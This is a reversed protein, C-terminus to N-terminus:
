LDVFREPNVPINNKRVEFHLHPGTARGTQGSRALLDGKAVVTGVKVLNKSNHSYYTKVGNGHDIAILLGYSGQNASFVVTGAGAAYVPSGQPMSLDIGTHFGTGRKGFRSFVVYGKAPRSLGSSVSAVMKVPVEKTGQAILEPVMKQTIKKALIEQSVIQGNEIIVKATIETQAPVGKTMLKTDGKYLKNSPQYVTEPKQSETYTKFGKTQVTLLPTKKTLNLVEGVKLYKQTAIQPNAETLKEVSTNYKEAIGGLTDHASITHSSVETLGADVKQKLVEVTAYSTFELCSIEMKQINVAELFGVSDVKIGKPIAENKLTLLASKATEADKFYAIVKSNIKLVFTTISPKQIRDLDLIKTLSKFDLDTVIQDELLRDYVLPTSTIVAQNQNSIFKNTAQDVPGTMNLIMVASLALMGLSAGAVAVIRKNAFKSSQFVGKLFAGSSTFIQSQSISGLRQTLLTKTEELVRDLEIKYDIKSMEVKATSNVTEIAIQVPAFQSYQSSNATYQKKEVSQLTQPTMPKVTETVVSKHVEKTKRTSTNKKKKTQQKHM